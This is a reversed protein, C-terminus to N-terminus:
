EENIRGSGALYRLFSLRALDVSTWRSDPHEGRDAANEITYLEKWATLRAIETPTLM